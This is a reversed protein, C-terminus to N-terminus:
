EAWQVTAHALVARVPAEAESLHQAKELAARKENGTILLHVSMAAKLVPATLTIRPEGAASARLSMVPPAIAALAVVLRVAGPFQCATHM